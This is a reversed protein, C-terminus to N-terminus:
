KGIADFVQSMTFCPYLSSATDVNSPVLTTMVSSPFFYRPDAMPFCVNMSLYTCCFTVVQTSSSSRREDIAMVWGCAAKAAKVCPRVLLHVYRALVVGFMAFRM